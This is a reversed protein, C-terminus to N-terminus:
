KTVVYIYEVRLARSAGFDHVKGGAYAAVHGSTYLLMGLNEGWGQTDNFFDNFMVIQRTTLNSVKYNKNAALDNLIDVVHVDYRCVTFGLDRIANHIQDDSTGQRHKRGRKTMAAHAEAYSVGTAAAVARVSCDNTENFRKSEALYKDFDGRDVEKDLQFKRKRNRKPKAPANFLTDLEQCLNEYATM